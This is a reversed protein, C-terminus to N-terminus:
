SVIVDLVAKLLTILCFHNQSIKGSGVISYLVLAKHQLKEVLDWIYMHHSEKSVDQCIPGKHHLVTISIIAVRSGLSHLVVPTM